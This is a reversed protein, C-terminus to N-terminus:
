PRRGESNYVTACRRLEQGISRPASARISHVGQEGVPIFEEGLNTHTKQLSLFMRSAEVVGLVPRELQRHAIPHQETQKAVVLGDCRAALALQPGLISPREHHKFAKALHGITEPQRLTGSNVVNKM